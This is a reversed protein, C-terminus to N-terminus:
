VNIGHEQDPTLRRDKQREKVAFNEPNTDTVSNVVTKRSLAEKRQFNCIITWLTANAEKSRNWQNNYGKNSNNTTPIITGLDLM